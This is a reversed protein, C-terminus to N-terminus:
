NMKWYKHNLVIYAIDGKGNLHYSISSPSNKRIENFYANIDEQSIIIKHDVLLKISIWDNISFIDAMNTVRDHMINYGQLIIKKLLERHRDLSFRTSKLNIAKAILNIFKNQYFINEMNQIDRLENYIVEFPSVNGYQIPLYFEDDDRKEIKLIKLDCLAQIRPQIKHYVTSKDYRLEKNKIQTRTQDILEKIKLRTKLDPAIDIYDEY